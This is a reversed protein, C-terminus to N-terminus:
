ADVRLLLADRKGDPASESNVSCYGTSTRLAPELLIAFDGCGALWLLDDRPVDGFVSFTSEAGVCEPNLRRAQHSGVHRQDGRGRRQSAIRRIFRTPTTGSAGTRLPNRDARSSILRLELSSCHGDTQREKSQWRRRPLAAGNSSEPASMSAAASRPTSRRSRSL